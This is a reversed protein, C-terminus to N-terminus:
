AKEHATSRGSRLTVIFSVPLAIFIPDVMALYGLGTDKVLSTKGTLLRCIQLSSSEKEHIFFIWFTSLSFGAIMGWKAAARPLSKIYLAGIYAPLFSAACLGFFLATGVAIIAMSVDLHRTLWALLTSLVVTTLM